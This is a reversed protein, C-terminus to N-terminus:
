YAEVKARRAVEKPDEALDKRNVSIILVSGRGPTLRAVGRWPSPYPQPGGALYQWEVLEQANEREITSLATDSSKEDALVEQLAKVSQRAAAARDKDAAKAAIRLRTTPLVTRVRALSQVAGTGSVVAVIREKEGVAELRQGYDALVEFVVTKLREVKMKDYPQRAIGFGAVAEGSGLFPDAVPYGPEMAPPGLREAEMEREFRQWLDDAKRPAAGPKPAPPEAVPFKVDVFFMAGIGPVYFGQTGRQVLSATHVQEKFEASLQLDLIRTMIATQKSTEAPVSVSTQPWTSRATAVLLVMLISALAKTQKPRSM